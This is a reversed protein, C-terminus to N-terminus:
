LSDGLALSDPNADEQLDAQRALIRYEVAGARAQRITAWPAANGLADLVGPGDASAAPAEVYVWGGPALCGEVRALLVPLLGLRFPPDLFVVDHGGAAGSSRRAEGELFRLADARVIEIVTGAPPEGLQGRTAELARLIAPEREVMVVREAGRSAAEFGLAGSGAFLDLCRLGQMDQGLWNFVTERVRDPTPRLDETSPFSLMRRRWHGGIIRVRQALVPRPALRGAARAPARRDATPQRAM